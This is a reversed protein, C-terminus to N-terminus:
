NRPNSPPTAKFVLTAIRSTGADSRSKSINSRRAESHTLAPRGQKSFISLGASRAGTEAGYACASLRQLRQSRYRALSPYTKTLLPEGLFVM